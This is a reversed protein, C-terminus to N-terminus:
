GNNNDKRTMLQDRETILNLIENALTKITNNQDHDNAIFMCLATSKQEILTSLESARKLNKM